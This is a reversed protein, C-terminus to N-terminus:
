CWALMAALTHWRQLQFWGHKKFHYFNLCLISQCGQLWTFILMVSFTYMNILHQTVGMFIRLTVHFLYHSSTNIDQFFDKHMMM